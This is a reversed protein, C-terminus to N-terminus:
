THSVPSRESALARMKRLLGGADLFGVARDVENGASDYFIMTPVGAVGFRELLADNRPGAETVDAQLMVFRLSERVVDSDVFTSREMEACPMCWAAGFEVIVPRQEAIARDLAAVSLPQWRIQDGGASSPLAVWVAVAVVAFGLVRRMMTFTRLSRGSRDLFGLYIGAGAIFAPAVVRTVAPALLPRLFYLAMGLLLVGFFREVWGLWEGSRPLRAISGAATALLLYPLGMGLGLAVFLLFGLVLDRHAGVYILLGLVVPGICPAAVLGMTLGMLFAGGVGASSGGFRQLLAQPASIEFWGFSSAALTALLAALAILVLPQRLAAGFLGGFLAASVGLAAFTLTIGVVYALALPWTRSRGRSQSGFYGLTVSILPYVCPTLNLTLGLALMAALALPLSAKELWAALTASGEEAPPAETPTGPAAELSGRQAADRSAAQAEIPLLAKVVTPPLCHRDDCAQYRLEAHVPRAASGSARAVITLSESYVRLKEGPAFALERVEPPPYDPPAFDLGEGSLTLDTPVLYDAGPEHANIHFGPAIRVRATVRYDGADAAVSGELSVVAAPAAARVATAVLTL